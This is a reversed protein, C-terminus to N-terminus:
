MGEVLVMYLWIGSVVLAPVLGAVRRLLGIRRWAVLTWVTLVMTLPIILYIAIVLVFFGPGLGIGDPETRMPFLPSLVFPAVAIALWAAALTPITTRAHRRMWQATASYLTVIRARIGMIETEKTM